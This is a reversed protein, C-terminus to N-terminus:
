AALRKPVVGSERDAQRMMRCIRPDYLLRAERREREDRSLRGSETGRGYFGPTLGPLTEISANPAVEHWRDAIDAAFPDYIRIHEVRDAYMRFLAKIQHDYPPLSYGVVVLEDAAGLEQAARHWVPSLWRPVHKEPLPPVIAASSHDRLAPRVDAFMDVGESTLSWNLSGHLKALPIPGAPTPDVSRDKAFPSNVPHVKGEMGAYHFGPSGPVVNPTIGVTQEITLDYSPTVIARVITRDLLDNWFRAQEPSPTRRLLAPRFPAYRYSRTTAAPTALRRQIYTAVREWSLTFEHWQEDELKLDLELQGVSSPPPKPFLPARVIRAHGAYASAIFQEARDTGNERRWLRYADIVQEDRWDFRRHDDLPDFLESALPLGAAASWGAGVILVCGHSSLRQFTRM